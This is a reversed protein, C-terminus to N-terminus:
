PTHYIFKQAKGKGHDHTGNSCVEQRQISYESTRALLALVISEPFYPKQDFPSLYIWTPQLLLLASPWSPTPQMHLQQM